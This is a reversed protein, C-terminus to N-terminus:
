ALVRNERAVAYVARAACPMCFRRTIRVIRAKEKSPSPASATRPALPLSGGLSALAYPVTADKAEEADSANEAGGADDTLGSPPVADTGDISPPAPTRLSM